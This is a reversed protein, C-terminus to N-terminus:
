HKNDSEEGGLLSPLRMVAERKRQDLMHAYIETTSLNRHGLLKQLTYIDTGYELMLVAFTHRSSHFTIRKKIGSRMAWARLEALENVSYTFDGFVKEKDSKREGMVSAAQPTIDLYEQESTKKQRFTLRTFGGGESVDGWTLAMVDSRRLGTLCAFLFARKLGPYVCETASMAKVEESTLFARTSETRGPRKVANLPNSSLLGDRVAKNIAAMMKSWYVSQTSKSVAVDKRKLKLAGLWKLYDEGWKVDIDCLKTGRKPYSRLAKLASMWVRYTSKKERYTDAVSEFWDVAKVDALTRTSLGYRGERVEILRKARVAEALRMTEANAEKDKRTNEPVLYLRLYEYTRKGDVYIDLYLSRNGSPTPRHRLCVPNKSKKNNKSM